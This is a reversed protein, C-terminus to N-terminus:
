RRDYSMGRAELEDLLIELFDYETTVAGFPGGTLATPDGGARHAM